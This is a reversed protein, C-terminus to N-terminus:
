LSRLSTVSDQETLKELYKFYVGFSFSVKMLCTLKFWVKCKPGINQIHGYIMNVFPILVNIPYIIFLLNPNRFQICNKLTQSYFM